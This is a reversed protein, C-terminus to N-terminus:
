NAATCDAATTIPRRAPRDVTMVPAEVFLNGVSDMRASIAYPDVDMPLAYRTTLQERAPKGDDRQVTRTVLVRVKNGAVNTKVLADGAAVGRGLPLTFRLWLQGVRDEYFAFDINSGPPPSPSTNDLVSPLPRPATSSPKVTGAPRTATLPVCYQLRTTSDEDFMLSSPAPKNPHVRAPMTRGIFEERDKPQTNLRRNECCVFDGNARDYVVVVVNQDFNVTRATTQGAHWSKPRDCDVENVISLRELCATDVSAM